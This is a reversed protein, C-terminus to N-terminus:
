DEDDSKDAVAGAKSQTTSQQGSVASGGNLNNKIAAPAQQWQWYWFAAVALLILLGISRSTAAIAEQAPRRKNGDVMARPLNERHLQSTILVAAIHVIVLALMGNAALEHAEELWEGGINNYL